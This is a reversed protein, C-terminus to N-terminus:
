GRKKFLAWIAKVRKTKSQKPPTNAERALPLIRQNGEKIRVARTKASLIRRIGPLYNGAARSPRMTRDSQGFEKEAPSQRPPCSQNVSIEQV